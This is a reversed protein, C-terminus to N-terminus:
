SYAGSPGGDGGGFPPKRGVLAELMTLEEDTHNMMPAKLFARKSGAGLIYYPQEHHKTDFVMREGPFSKADLEIGGYCLCVYTVEPDSELYMGTGRTGAIATITEIRKGGSGFVSLVKGAAVKITKVLKTAGLGQGAKEGALEIRSNERVLFADKGIVFVGLSASGTTIVDGPFVISGVQAPSGNVAVTGKVKRFGELLQGGEGMAMVRRVLTSSAAGSVIGAALMKKLFARRDFASSNKEM